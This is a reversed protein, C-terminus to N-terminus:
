RMYSVKLSLLPVGNDDSIGSLYDNMLSDIAADKERDTKASLSVSVGDNSFSQVGNGTTDDSLISILEYTLYKVSEPIVSPMRDGTRTKIMQSVRCVLRNFVASDLTGGMNLYEELTLYMM